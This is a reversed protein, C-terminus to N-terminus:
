RQPSRPVAVSFTSGKGPVSRVSVPHGLLKSLRDVIALGVGLGKGRDRESNGAQFFDDFIDARIDPSIGIGTDHVEVMLRDGRRRCGVLVRGRETYRLANDVLNGVMRGLLAPDTRVLASCPAARFGLHTADARGRCAAAIDDLIAAVPVERMDPVVIGADLRAVELLADLLERLADLAREIDRVISKERPGLAAGDLAALFLLLGQVPQRLDHSAAALFRSKTRSAVETAHRASEAEDKAAQLMRAMRQQEALRAELTAVQRERDAIGRRVEAVRIVSEVRALLNPASFPKTLYDDAGAAFGEIKAADGARASLLVIPLPATAPAARLRRTLAMGDLGPMMVDALLLLPPAALCAALAADGDAVVELRYDAGELLRRIYARMDANDDALVIRGRHPAVPEAGGPADPLGRRAEAVFAQATRGPVGSAAAPEGEAPSLGALPITVTFSSGLGPTSEVRVEGGHLRVLDRVLALGIGSGEHSRGQAGRVRYFREFLHGIDDRSIGTGTDRVTLEGAGAGARLRVEITGALTFKFANSLLNLVIKEWMAPDVYAPDALPPCDVVLALGASECVSRFNSALDATLQALDTPVPSPQVHRAEIRSFDLLTNVLKLLRLANRHALTLPELAEAPLAPQALLDEIPGLMLTLPTRFEHSVNSFFENKARDLEKLRENAHALESERRELEAKAAKIARNADKVERARHLVEAQMRDAERSSREKALIFDTVDEVHHIIFAVGGDDAFVPSNVPSWYRVDFDAGEVGPIDYKQVGMVDQVREALVRELSIRLDSVGTATPDCPNDPFVEFLGKGIIVDRRTGTAALYRDNVAAITFAADPKLVLYPHPCAEFLLRFGPDM